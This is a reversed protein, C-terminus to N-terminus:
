PWKTIEYKVTTKKTFIDLSVFFAQIFILSLGLPLISALYASTIKGFVVHDFTIEVQLLQWAAYSMWGLGILTLGSILLQLIKRGHEIKKEALWYNVFDISIHAGRRTAIAGGLLAVSLVLHRTLVDVWILSFQFIRGIIALLSLLLMASFCLVLLGINVQM